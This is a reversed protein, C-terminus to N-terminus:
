HRGCHSIQWQDSCQWSRRGRMRLNGNMGAKVVREETDFGIFRYELTQGNEVEIAYYGNVDSLVGTSTGKLMVSAGVIPNGDADTLLGKLTWKKSQQATSTKNAVKSIVIQRGVISYSVDTGKFMQDLIKNVTQKKASLSVKRDVDINQDLFFVIFESQKEIDNFVEKVAKSKAEITILTQAPFTSAFVPNWSLILFLISVKLIQLFRVQEVKSLDFTDINKM